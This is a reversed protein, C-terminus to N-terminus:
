RGQLLHTKFFELVLKAYEKPSKEFLDEHAAGAVFALQKPEAAAAFIRKTEAVTTHPDVDGSAILVPCDLKPVYDIPRLDSTSVGLRPQIQCLLMPSLIQSLFGVRASVRNRIAEDITPFVSEMVLADIGLPSGLLASAGGLSIGLVGIRHDPNTQRVYEVAAKVDHRELHGLTIRSGPSEGHAQLDIMLVSYGANSFLKVREVLSTRDDRLGHVLLITARSDSIPCHWAAILSGSDSQFTVETVPFDKPREVKRNASAVLAGAVFWAGFGTSVIGTILILLM